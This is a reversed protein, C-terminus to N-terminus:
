RRALWCPLHFQKVMTFTFLPGLLKMFGGKISAGTLYIFFLCLCFLGKELGFFSLILTKHTDILEKSVGWLAGRSGPVGM